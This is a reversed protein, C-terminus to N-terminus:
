SHIELHRSFINHITNQHVPLANISPEKDKLNSKFTLTTLKTSLQILKINMLPIKMLLTSQKKNGLVGKIIEFLLPVWSLFLGNLLLIKHM